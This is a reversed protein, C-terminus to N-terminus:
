PGQLEERARAARERLAALEEPPMRRLGAMPGRMRRNGDFREANRAMFDWYLATVPCAEPGHRVNPSYRCSPCHESMRNVYNGGGAYPKTLMETGLAHMAMGAANPAMVWEAGDIFASQFWRVGPWPQVGAILMVNGLVMLREIHHAYADDWVKQVTSDLCRWGTRAPPTAGYAAPLELTADLENREPWEDRRLWYNGWMYERWGIVQRVYGEASQLPARGARYEAEVRRVVDLPRLFGLNM